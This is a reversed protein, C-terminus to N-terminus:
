KRLAIIIEAPTVVGDHNKDLQDFIKDVLEQSIPVYDPDM